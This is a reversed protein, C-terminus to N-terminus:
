NGDSLSLSLSRVLALRVQCIQFNLNIRLCNLVAQLSIKCYFTKWNAKLKEILM